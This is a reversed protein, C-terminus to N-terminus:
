LEESLVPLANKGRRLIENIIIIAVINAYNILFILKKRMIM